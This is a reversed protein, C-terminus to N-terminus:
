SQYPGTRKYFAASTIGLADVVDLTRIGLKDAVPIRSRIEAYIRDLRLRGDTRTYAKTERLVKAEAGLEGLRDLIKYQQRTYTPGPPEAGSGHCRRCTRPETTTM